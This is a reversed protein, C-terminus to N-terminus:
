PTSGRVRATMQFTTVDTTGAREQRLFQIQVQFVGIRNLDQAFRAVSIRQLATGQLTLRDEALTLTRLWMDQPIVRSLGQLLAVRRPVAQVLGRIDQERRRFEETEAQLQTLQTAVPRLVALQQEADQAASRAANTQGVLIGYPVVVALIILVPIGVLVRQRRRAERRAAIAAPMLNLTIRM